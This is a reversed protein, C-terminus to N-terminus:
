APTPQGGPAPARAPALPSRAGALRSMFSDFLLDSSDRLAALADGFSDELDLAELARAWHEPRMQAIQAHTDFAHIRLVTSHRAMSGDAGLKGSGLIEIQALPRGPGKDSRPEHFTARETWRADAYPRSSSLSKSSEIELELGRAPCRATKRTSAVSHPESPLSTTDVRAWASDPLQDLCRFFMRLINHAEPHHPHPEAIDPTYFEVNKM